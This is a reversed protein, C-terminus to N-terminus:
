LLLAQSKGSFMRLFALPAKTKHDVWDSNIKPWIGGKAPYCRWLSQFPRIVDGSWKDILSCCFSFLNVSWYYTKRHLLDQWKGLCSVEISQDDPMQLGCNTKKLDLFAQKQTQPGSRSIWAPDIHPQSFGCRRQRGFCSKSCYQTFINRTESFHIEKSQSIYKKLWCSSLPCCKVEM